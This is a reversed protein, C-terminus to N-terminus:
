PSTAKTAATLIKLKRLRNIAAAIELGRPLALTGLPWSRSASNWLDLLKDWNATANFTGALIQNITSRGDVINTACAYVLAAVIARTQGGECIQSQASLDIETDGWNIRNMRIARPRSEEPM